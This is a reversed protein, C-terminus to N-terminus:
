RPSVVVSQGRAIEITRRTTRGAVTIAVQHTGPTLTLTLPSTGRAAGDVVIRAGAPNAPIELQGTSPLVPAAASRPPVAAARPADPWTVLLATIVLAEVIAVGAIVVAAWAKVTLHVGAEPVVATASTQSATVDEAAARPAVSDNSIRSSARDADVPLPRSRKAQAFDVMTAGGQPAMEPWADSHTDAAVPAGFLSRQPRGPSEVGPWKALADEAARASKFGPGDILLASELWRRLYAPAGAHHLAPAVHEVDMRQGTLLLVALHAVQAVDSASGHREGPELHYVSMGFDSTLRGATMHIDALVSGLVHEILVLRGDPTIVIREPTVLGHSFGEGHAELAALAPILQRILSAAFRPGRADRLVDSLRRGVVQNSIMALGENRGLWEVSRVVGFGPHALTALDAVRQRLGSEFAPAYSFESKFRLLELSTASTNDSMLLRDGLGDSLGPTYWSALNSRADDHQAAPTLIQGPFRSM